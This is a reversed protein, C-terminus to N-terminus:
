LSMLQGENFTNARSFLYSNMVRFIDNENMHNGKAFTWEAWYNPAEGNNYVVRVKWSPVGKEEHDRDITVNIPNLNFNRFVQEVQEKM